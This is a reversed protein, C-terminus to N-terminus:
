ERINSYLCKKNNNKDEYRVSSFHRKIMSFNNDHHLSKHLYQFHQKWGHWANLVKLKTYKIIVCLRFNKGKKHM